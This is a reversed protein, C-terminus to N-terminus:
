RLGCRGRGSNRSAPAERLDGAARGADQSGPDRRHAAARPDGPRHLDQDAPRVGREHRPFLVAPGQQRLVQDLPGVLGAVLGAAAPRMRRQYLRRADPHFGYGFLRFFDEFELTKIGAIKLDLLANQRPNMDVAYVHSPGASPTTSPTAAPRRSSWCTTPRSSRWPWATWGPTKGAPTTSWTTATSSSSSGGASGISFRCTPGGRTLVDAARRPPLGHITSSRPRRSSTHTPPPIPTHSHRLIPTIVAVARQSIRFAHGSDKRNAVRHLVTPPPM